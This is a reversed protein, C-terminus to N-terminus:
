RGGNRRYHSLFADDLVRKRRTSEGTPRRSGVPHEVREVFREWRSRSGDRPATDGAAALAVEQAVPATAPEADGPAVESTGEVPAPGADGGAVAAAERRELSAASRTRRRRARSDRRATRRGNSVTRWRRSPASWGPWAVTRGTAIAACRSSRGSRSASRSPASSSPLWVWTGSSEIAAMFGHEKASASGEPGSESDSIRREGLEDRLTAVETRLADVDSRGPAEAVREELAAVEGELVAMRSERLTADVGSQALQERARELDEGREDLETRLGRVEEDRARDREFAREAEAQVATALAERELSLNAVETELEGERRARADLAAQTSTEFLARAERERRLETELAAVRNAVGADATALADFRESVEESTALAEPVRRFPPDAYSGGHAKSAAVREEIGAPVQGLDGRGISCAMPLPLLLLVAARFLDSGRM